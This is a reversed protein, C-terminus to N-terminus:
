QKLKANAEASLGSAVDLMVRVDLVGAAGALAAQLNTALAAATTYDGISRSKNIQKEVTAAHEEINSLIDTRENANLKGQAALEKAEHLRTQINAIDTGPRLRENVVVKFGWLADGPLANQAVLSTGGGIVAALLLAIVIFPM